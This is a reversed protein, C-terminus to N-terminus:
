PSDPPMQSPSLSNMERPSAANLDTQIHASSFHTDIFHLELICAKAPSDRSPLIEYEKPFSSTCEEM